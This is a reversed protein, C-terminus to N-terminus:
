GAPEDGPRLVPFQRPRTGQGRVHRSRRTENASRRNRWRSSIARGRHQMHYTTRLGLSPDSAGGRWPDQHRYEACRCRTSFGRGPCHIRRGGLRAVTDIKRVCELLRKAVEKLLLDGVHHGLSDNIIKFRDLDLFMVALSERHRVATSIAQSLRDQFFSRNALETLPDRNALFAIRTEAKKRETIDSTTGRRGTLVGHDDRVTVGNARLCRVEGSKYIFRHELDRFAGDPSENEAMWHRVHQIEGNPLFRFYSKGVMEEPRYGLVNEVRPSVYTFRGRPDTEWVYEGAAEAIDRFRRESLLLATETQRRATLDTMAVFIGKDGNHRMFASKRVFMWPHPGEPVPYYGEYEVPGGHRLVEDDTERFRRAAEEPFIDLDTKGVLAERPRKLFKCAADNMLMFRYHQDKVVIPNASADIIESLLREQDVLKEIIRNEYSIDRAVGRYGLFCGNDGFIPRGSVSITQQRGDLHVKSLAVNRFERRAELDAKHQTAHAASEFLLGIEFRTKGMSVNFPVAPQGDARDSFFTFRLNEDQEWYWDSALEAWDRLREVQM